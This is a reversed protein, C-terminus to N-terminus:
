AGVPRVGSWMREFIRKSENLARLGPTEIKFYRKARGGREATAEGKRSSVLGKEELRELTTYVAGISVVRGAREEIEQRITMGYANNRLRVLALLVIQEFEGLYSKKDTM